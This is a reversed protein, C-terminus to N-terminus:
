PHFPADLARAVAGPDKADLLARMVAVGDAGAAACTAANGVDVGGLAYVLLEPGSRSKAASIAPTGRAPGKRPTDYIPSVLVAAAHADAAITVDADSHAPTSIWRTAGLASRAAVIAEGRCPVHVGDADADIAAELLAQTPANVVLRAGSSSTVAGLAKATATLAGASAAKDRLQVLLAGAPLSKAAALITQEIRALPWAPDTILIVSPARRV